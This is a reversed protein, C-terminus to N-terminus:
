NYTERTRAKPPTCRTSKNNRIGESSANKGELAPWVLHLAGIDLRGDLTRCDNTRARRGDLLHIEECWEVLGAISVTIRLGCYCCRCGCRSKPPYGAGLSHAVERLSVVPRVWRRHLLPLYYCHLPHLRAMSVDSRHDQHRFSRPSQTICRQSKHINTNFRRRKSMDKQSTRDIM